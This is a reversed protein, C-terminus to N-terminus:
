LEILYYYPPRISNIILYGMKGNFVSFMKKNVKVSKGIKIQEGVIIGKLENALGMHNYLTQTGFCSVTSLITYNPTILM